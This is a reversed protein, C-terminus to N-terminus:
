TQRKNKEEDGETKQRERGTIKPKLKNGTAARRGGNKEACSVHTKDLVKFTNERTRKKAEDALRM